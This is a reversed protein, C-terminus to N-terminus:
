PTARLDECSCIVINDALPLFASKLSPDGKFFAQAVSPTFGFYLQLFPSQPEHVTVTPPDRILAHTPFTGGMGLNFLKCSFPSSTFPYININM